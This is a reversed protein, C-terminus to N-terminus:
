SRGGPLAAWGELRMIRFGIGPKDSEEVLRYRTEIWRDLQRGYRSGYGGSDYIQASEDFVIVVLPPCKALVGILGEQGLEDFAPDLKLGPSPSDRDFLFNLGHSQPLFLIQDKPGTSARVFDRIRGLTRAWGPPVFVTGRPTQVATVPEPWRGVRFLAPLGLLIAVSAFVLPWRSGDNVPEATLSGRLWSFLRAVSFVAVPLALSYGIATFPGDSWGRWGVRTLLPLAGASMAALAAARDQGLEERRLCGYVLAALVAVPVIALVSIRQSRGAIVAAGVGGTLSAVIPRSLRLRAPPMSSFAAAAATVAVAAGVAAIVTLLSDMPHNTGTVGAYQARWARPIPSFPWPAAASFLSGGLVTWYGTFVTVFFVTGAVAGRFVVRRWSQTLAWAAAVGLAASAGMEQKTLYALGALLGAAAVLVGESSSHGARAAISLASLVLLFGISVAPTYPYLLSGEGPIWFVITALVAAAVWRESPRLFRSSFGVIGLAAFLGLAFELIAVSSVTRPFPSLLLRLVVMSLPGYPLGFDRMVRRGRWMGDLDGYWIGHDGLPSIWRGRAVLVLAAAAGLVLVEPGFRRLIGSSASRV